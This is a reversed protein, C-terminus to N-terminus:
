SLTQSTKFNQNNLCYGHGKQVTRFVRRQSDPQNQELLGVGTESRQFTKRIERTMEPTNFGRM